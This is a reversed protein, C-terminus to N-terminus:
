ALAVHRVAQELLLELRQASPSSPTIVVWDPSAASSRPPVARRASPGARRAPLAARSTVPLRLRLGDRDLKAFVRRGAFAAPVGFVHGSRLGRHSAVFADLVARLDRRM